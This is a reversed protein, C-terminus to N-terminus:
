SITVTGLDTQTTDDGLLHEIRDEEVLKLNGAGFSETPVGVLVAPPLAVVGPLPRTLNLWPAAVNCHIVLSRNSDFYEINFSGPLVGPCSPPLPIYLTNSSQAVGPWFAEELTTADPCPGTRAARWAQCRLQDLSQTPTLHGYGYTTRGDAVRLNTIPRAGGSHIDHASPTWTLVVLGGLLLLTVVSVAVCGIGKRTWPTDNAAGAGM